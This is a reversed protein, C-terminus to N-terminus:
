IACIHTSCVAFAWKALVEGHVCSIYKRVFYLIGVRGILCDVFIM